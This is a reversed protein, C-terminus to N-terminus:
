VFTITHQLALNGTDQALLVLYCFILYRANVQRRELDLRLILEHTFCASSRIPFRRQIDPCLFYDVYDNDSSVMEVQRILCVNGLIFEDFV